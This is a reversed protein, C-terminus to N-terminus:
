GEQTTGGEEESTAESEAALLDELAEELQKKLLGIVGVLTRRNMRDHENLDLYVKPRDDSVVFTGIDKGTGDKIISKIYASGNGKITVSSEVSVGQGCFEPELDFNVTRNVRPM